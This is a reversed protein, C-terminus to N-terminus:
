LVFPNSDNSANAVAITIEAPFTQSCKWDRTHPLNRHQESNVCTLVNVNHTFTEKVYWSPKRSVTHQFEVSALCRKNDADAHNMAISNNDEQFTLLLLLFRKSCTTDALSQGLRGQQRGRAFMAGTIQRQRSLM